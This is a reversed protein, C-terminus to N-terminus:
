GNQRMLMCARAMRLDSEDDIDMASMWDLPEMVHGPTYFSGAELFADRRALWIAGSPCYLPPLDQSRQQRAEAFLYHPEGSDDLRAAWWPNMWGFRFCSVQAPAGRADFAATASRVDNATRLPCNAMFQSVVDFRTDWHQEAQALAIRTAASSPSQDDAASSRLFPVEAGHLRAVEAIEPDDTSVLVREFCGSDLAARVSWALMPAGGIDLINKRPLRVSGGRALIIAIRGSM